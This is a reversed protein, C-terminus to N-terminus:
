SEEGDKSFRKEIRGIIRFYVNSELYRQTMAIQKDLSDVARRYDEYTGTKDFRSRFFKYTLEEIEREKEYRKKMLLVWAAHVLWIIWVPIALFQIAESM